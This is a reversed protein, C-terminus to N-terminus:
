LIGLENLKHERMEELTVFREARYAERVGKDNLIVIFWTEKPDMPNTSIELIEYRKWKTIVGALLNRTDACVATDGAKM